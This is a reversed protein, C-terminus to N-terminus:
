NAICFSLTVIRNGLFCVKDGVKLDLPIRNGDKDIGGAGTALVTGESLKEQAKEPIYM